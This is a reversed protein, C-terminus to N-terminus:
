RRTAYAANYADRCEPHYDYREGASGRETVHEDDHLSKHCWDCEYLTIYEAQSQSWRTIKM